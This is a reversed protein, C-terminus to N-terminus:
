ALGFYQKFTATITYNGAGRYATSYTSCTYQKEVAGTEPSTWEFPTYSKGTLFAVIAQKEADSVKFTVNWSEVVNNIGDPEIQAYGNGFLAEKVKETVTKTSDISPLWTFEAM